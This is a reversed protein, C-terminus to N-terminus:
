FLGHQRSMFANENYVAGLASLLSIIDLVEPWSGAKALSISPKLFREAGEFFRKVKPPRHDISKLADPLGRRSLDLGKRKRYDM